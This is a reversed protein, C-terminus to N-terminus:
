FHLAMVSTVQGRPAIPIAIMRGEVAPVGTGFAHGLPGSASGTDARAPADLRGQAESFGLTRLLQQGAADPEWIGVQRAIPTALASLFTMVQNSGDLTACPIAFGRNIGVKVADDARLFGSGKGLNDLFVPKGREWAMGPLGNGQRFSTNRSVFEFTDGTSGYYGDVLRMDKSRTPENAWLEIAGAHNADDGCFLVTVATLRGDIFTPVAIACTLGEDDAAAIRQFYSGKFQRLMVPHGLDWAQGPLGEGRGFCLRRTIAAFSAAKGFLGGGFELLSGNANPVWYEIIRVFTRSATYTTDM